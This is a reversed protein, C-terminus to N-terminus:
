AHLFRRKYEAVLKPLADAVRVPSFGFEERIREILIPPFSVTPSGEAVEIRCGTVKVIADVLERHTTNEGSAVNYVRRRGASAIRPLLRVVDDVSVYDKASDLSTRLIVQNHEAADRLVSTLFNESTFDDGFVNSLRAVRITERPSSLCISEGMIKSVNYLDDTRLPNVRLNGGERTDEIGAYLRTTSLYLLSEFDTKELVELLACVHAKVTDHQRGRWDATLGICYIVHGLPRGSLDEGRAPAHCDHGQSELWRVLHSGIFGSSGLVTYKM